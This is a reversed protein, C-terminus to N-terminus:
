PTGVSVLLMIERQSRCNTKDMIAKLQTRITWVSVGIKKAALTPSDGDVLSTLV